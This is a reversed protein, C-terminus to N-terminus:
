SVLTALTRPRFATLSLSIAKTRSFSPRGNTGSHLLLEGSVFAEPIGFQIGRQADIDTITNKARRDAHQVSLFYTGRCGAAAPAKRQRIRKKITFFVLFHFTLFKLHYYYLAHAIFYSFAISNFNYNM